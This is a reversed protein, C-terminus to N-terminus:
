KSTEIELAEELTTARAILRDVHTMHLLELVRPGVGALILRAGRGDCRVQHSVLVGLGASDMYPVGSLDFIDLANNDGDKPVFLERMQLPSLSQHMDRATFPGSFRFVRM